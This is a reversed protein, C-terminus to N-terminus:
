WVCHVLVGRNCTGVGVCDSEMRGFLLPRYKGRMDFLSRLLGAAARAKENATVHTDM